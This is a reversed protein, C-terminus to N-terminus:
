PTPIDQLLPQKSETNTDKDWEAILADALFCADKAMAEKVNIDGYVGTWDQLQKVYAEGGRYVGNAISQMFRASLEQRITMGYFSGGMKTVCPQSPQNGTIM